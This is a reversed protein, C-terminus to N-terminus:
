AGAEREQWECYDCWWGVRGADGWLPLVSTEHCKPCRERRYSRATVGGSTGVQAALEDVRKILDESSDRYAVNLALTSGRTILRQTIVFTDWYIQDPDTTAYGQVVDARPRKAQRARIVQLELLENLGLTARACLEDVLEWVVSWLEDAEVLPDLRLPPRAVDPTGSIRGERRAQMSPMAQERLHGVIPAVQALCEVIRDSFGFPDSM